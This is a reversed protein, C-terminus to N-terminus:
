ENTLGRLTKQMRAWNAARKEESIIASSGSEGGQTVSATSTSRPKNFNNEAKIEDKKAGTSNPVLKKVIKYINTCNEITEPLKILSQYIEPHHYELYAGNDENVVQDYDAHMQRLRKPVEAAERAERDKQYQVERQALMANLKKELRQDETEEEPYAAYNQQANQNFTTKGLAVELAKAMADARQTEEAARKEIAEREAREKKRLERVAKWNPDERVEEQQVPQPTAPQVNNQEVKEQVIPAEPTVEPQM